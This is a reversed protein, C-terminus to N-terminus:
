LRLAHLESRREINPTAHYRYAVDAGGAYSNVGALALSVRRVVYGQGFVSFSLRASKQWILGVRTDSYYTRSDFLDNAPITSFDLSTLPLFTYAGNALNSTDAVERVDLTMRRSLKRKYKLTLFQDIGDLQSDNVYHRFSGSYDLSM